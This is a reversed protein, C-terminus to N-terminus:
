PRRWQREGTDRNFYYARRHFQSWAEEWGLPLPSQQVEQVFAEGIQSVKVAWKREADNLRSRRSSAAQRCLPCRAATRDESALHSLWTEACTRHLVHSCSAMPQVVDGNAFPEICIPCETREESTWIMWNSADEVSFVLRPHPLYLSVRHDAIGSHAAEVVDGSAGEFHRQGQVLPRSYPFAVSTIRQDFVQHAHLRLVDDQWDHPRTDAVLRVTKTNGFLDVVPRLRRHSPLTCSIRLRARGDLFLVLQDTPWPYRQLSSRWALLGVHTGVSLDASNWGTSIWRDSVTIDDNFRAYGASSGGASVGYGISCSHPISRMSTFSRLHRALAYQDENDAATFGMTLGYECDSLMEVVCVEFYADPANMSHCFAVKFMGELEPSPANVPVRRHSAVDLNRITVGLSELYSDFFPVDTEVASPTQELTGSIASIVTEVPSPTHELTRLNGFNNALTASIASIILPLRNCSESSLTVELTNGLLDVFPYVPETISTPLEVRAVERSDQLISILQARVLLGVKSGADLHKPRWTIPIEIYDQEDQASVGGCIICVGDYGLTWSRWLCDAVEVPQSPLTQTVGLTLGDSRTQQEIVDKVLVEFYMGNGVVTPFPVLPCTGFVVGYLSDTDTHRATLGDDSISVLPSVLGQNWQLRRRNRRRSAYSVM